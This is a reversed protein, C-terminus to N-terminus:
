YLEYLGEGDVLKFLGYDQPNTIRVKHAIIKCVDRTTMNPRVPLTKTIISGHMEDPVVIKLVSRFETLSAVRWQVHLLLLSGTIYHYLYLVCVNFIEYLWFYYLRRVALHWPTL